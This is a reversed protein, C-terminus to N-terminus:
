TGLRQMIRSKIAGYSRDLNQQQGGVPIGSGPAPPVPPKNGMQQQQRQSYNKLVADPIKEAIMHLYASKLDPFNGQGAYNVLMEYPYEIGFQGMLSGKITDYESKVESVLKEHQAQQVFKYMEDLRPDNIQQPQQMQQGQGQIPPQGQMGQQGGYGQIAQQMYAYFQPDSELRQNLAVLPELQKLQQEYQTLKVKGKNQYYYGMQLLAEQETKPVKVQDKNYTFTLYADDGASNQNFPDNPNGGPIPDTGGAGQSTGGVPGDGATGGSPVSPMGDGGFGADVYTGMMLFKPKFM